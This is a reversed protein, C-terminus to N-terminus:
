LGFAAPYRVKGCIGTLANMRLEAAMFAHKPFPSELGRAKEASFGFRGYYDPHGLVIVIDESRERLRDLGARILRGGIGQRQHSPLVAVPALAVAAISRCYRDV